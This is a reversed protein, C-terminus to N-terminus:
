EVFAIRGKVDPFVVKGVGKITKRVHIKGQGDTKGEERTGDPKKLIYRENKVPEGGRDVLTVILEDMDDPTFRDPLVVIPPQIEAMPPTNPAGGINGLMQDGLRPVCKGEIKVDFSYNIFQAKGKNVGSAIGGGKGPEDGTSTSFVSGQLMVPNGDVKVTTSGKDTDSSRAINPYPVPVPGGPSPTLCVDPGFTVIGGSTKHVVTMGNVCVTAAM